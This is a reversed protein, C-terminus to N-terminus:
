FDFEYSKEQISSIEKLGLADGSRYKKLKRINPALFAKQNASRLKGASKKPSM